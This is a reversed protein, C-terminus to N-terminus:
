YRAKIKPLAKVRRYRVQAWGGCLDSRVNERSSLGLNYERGVSGSLEQMGIQAEEAEDAEIDTAHGSSDDIRHDVM